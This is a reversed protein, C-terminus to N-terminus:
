LFKGQYLWRRAAALFHPALASGGLSTRVTGKGAFLPVSLIELSSSASASLEPAAPFVSPRSCPPPRALRRGRLHLVSGPLTSGTGGESDSPVRAGPDLPSPLSGPVHQFPVYFPQFNSGVPGTPSPSSPTIEGGSADDRPLPCPAERCHRPAPRESQSLSAETARALPWGGSPLTAERRERRRGTAGDGRRPLRAGEKSSTAVSHVLFFLSFSPLFREQNQSALLAARGM